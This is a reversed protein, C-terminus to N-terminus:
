LESDTELSKYDVLHPRGETLNVNHLTIDSFKIGMSNKYRKEFVEVADQEDKAKLVKHKKAYPNPSATYEIEFYKLDKVAKFNGYRDKEIKMKKGKRKKEREKDYEM